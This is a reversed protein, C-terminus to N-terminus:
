FKDPATAPAPFYRIVEVSSMAILGEVVMDDLYPILTNIRAETDIISLM